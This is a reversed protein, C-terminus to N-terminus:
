LWKVLTAMVGIAVVAISGIKLTLRLGLKELDFKTALNDGAFKELAETHAEVHDGQIGADKLHKSYASM